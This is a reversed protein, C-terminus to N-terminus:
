AEDQSPRMAMEQILIMLINHVTLNNFGRPVKVVFNREKNWHSDKSVCLCASITRKNPQLKLWDKWLIGKAGEGLTTLIAIIAELSMDNRRTTRPLRLNILLRSLQFFKPLQGESAYIDSETTWIVQCEARGESCCGYEIKFISLIIATNPLDHLKAVYDVRVIIGSREHPSRVGGLNKQM